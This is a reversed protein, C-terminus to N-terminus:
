PSYSTCTSALLALDTAIHLLLWRASDAKKEGDIEGAGDALEIIASLSFSAWFAAWLWTSANPPGVVGLATASGASGVLVAGYFLRLFSRPTQHRPEYEWFERGNLRHRLALRAGYFFRHCVACVFACALAAGVGSSSPSEIIIQTNM